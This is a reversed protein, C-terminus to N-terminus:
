LSADNGGQESVNGWLKEAARVAAETMLITQHSLIDLMNIVNVNTTDIVPINRSSKVLNVDTEPTVVLASSEVKLAALVELMRKTKPEAFDFADVVKLEGGGAKASLVCRLALRRMKKPTDQRYDRPHPGFTVAGGRHLASKISGARAEGTGKQRFLKRTSGSVMSRTKTSATGQRANARMGVMVQHVVAENYPQAFVKDNVEIQRVVEGTLNYVPLQV